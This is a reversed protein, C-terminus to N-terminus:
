KKNFYEDIATYTFKQMSLEQQLYLLNNEISDIHKSVVKNFYCKSGYLTNRLSDYYGYYDNGLVESSRALKYLNIGSHTSNLNSISQKIELLNKIKSFEDLINEFVVGESISEIFKHLKSATKRLILENNKLYDKFGTEKQFQYNLQVFIEDVTLPLSCSQIIIILQIYFDVFIVQYLLNTPKQFYEKVNNLWNDNGVKLNTILKQKESIKSELAIIEVELSSLIELSDSVSCIRKELEKIANISLYNKRGVSIIESDLDTIERLKQGIWSSSSKHEIGQFQRFEYIVSPLYRHTFLYEVEKQTYYIKSKIIDQNLRLILEVALVQTHCHIRLDSVEIKSKLIQSCIDVLLEITKNFIEREKVTKIINEKSIQILYETAFYLDNVTYPEDSFVNYIAKCQEYAKYEKLQKFPNPISTVIKQMDAVIGVYIELTQVQECIQNLSIEKNRKNIRLLM